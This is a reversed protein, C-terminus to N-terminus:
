LVIGKTEFRNGSRGHPLGLARARRAITPESFGMLEGILRNGPGMARYARLAADLEDNWVITFTRAQAARIRIARQDKSPAAGQEQLIQSIRSPSLGFKVAVTQLTAGDEYYAAVVALDRAARDM